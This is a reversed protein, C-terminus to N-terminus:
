PPLEWLGLTKDESGSLAYGGGPSFAVCTVAQQHRKRFDIERRNSLDWLRVTGDRSGSLARRGDPSFAVCTVPQEHGVLHTPDKRKGLDWLYVDPEHGCGSLAHSGDPSVAVCSVQGLHAPFDQDKRPDRTDHIVLNAPERVAQHAQGVLLRQGDPFFCAVHGACGAGPVDKEKQLDYVRVVDHQDAHLALRGDPSVAVCAQLTGGQPKGTAVVKRWSELDWILLGNMGGMVAHRGDPTVAACVPWDMGEGVDSLDPFEPPQEPARGGPGLKLRGQMAERTADFQNRSKLVERATLDWLIFEFMSCSLARKGDPLFAVSMVGQSHGTLLAGHGLAGVRERPPPGKPRAPTAAGDAATGAPGPAADPSESALGGHPNGTRGVLYLAATLGACTLLALFLATAGAGAVWPWLRRRSPAQGSRPPPTAGTDVPPPTEWVSGDAAVPEAMPIAPAEARLVAAPAAPVATPRPSRFAALAALLEAPTQFRDEPRWARLREVLAALERPVDPRVAEVPKAHGDADRTPTQGTLLHFCTCGLSYLDARIDVEHPNLAQEPAMYPRTGLLRVDRTLEEVTDQQEHGGVFLVLGLDLIKVQQERVTVLLNRPKVDRHVMGREHLHRLGEAAQALYACAQEVPLPGADRVLRDLDIGDLYEMVMFPRGRDEGAYYVKVINPHDLRATAALERAFRSVLHRAAEPDALLDERIVKLAEVRDLRQHRAKFVHGMGGGGLKELLVYEGVLLGPGHGRNLESAQYPTLWGRRVLERALAAVTPFGARLEGEIAQWQRPGLLTVDRLSQLFASLSDGPM